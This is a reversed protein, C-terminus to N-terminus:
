HGTHERMNKGADTVESTGMLRLTYLSHLEVTKNSIELYRNTEM